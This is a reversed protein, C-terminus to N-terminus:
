AGYRYIERLFVSEFYYAFVAVTEESYERVDVSPRYNGGVTECFKNWSQGTIEQCAADVEKAVQGAFWCDDDFTGEDCPVSIGGEQLVVRGTYNKSTRVYREAVHCATAKRVRATKADADDDFMGHFPKYAYVALNVDRGACDKVIKATVKYIFATM